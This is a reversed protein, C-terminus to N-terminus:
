RPVKAAKAASIMAAADAPLLHGAAVAAHASATVKRVYDGHTPYLSALMAPSFPTTGGFLTCLVDSSPNLGTLTATPADVAPTRVGGLAEGQQDRAIANGAVQLRPATAPPVGTAVWTTLAAWVQHLVAAQPGQNISGCITAFDPPAQSSWVKASEFGYTLTSQDAHATGAVEWTRLHPTDPQGAPFFGLRFLDTETEFTMVPVSLDTRIVAVKPM